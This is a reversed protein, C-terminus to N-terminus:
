MERDFDRPPPQGRSRLVDRLDDEPTRRREEQTPEPKPEPEHRPAPPTSPRAVPESNRATPPPKPPEFRKSQPAEALPKGQGPQYHIRPPAPKSLITHEVQGRMTKNLSRIADAIERNNGSLPPSATHGTRKRKEDRLREEAENRAQAEAIAQQDRSLREASRQRAEEITPLAAPDIDMLRTRIEASKVDEIRRTLGHIEGAADVLVFDRRDGRTLIFGEAEVRVRFGAGSVTQQWCQTVIRKAQQPTMGSREAQRQEGWTPGREPRPQSAKDRTHAGIVPEHRFDRELKRSVLEHRRYNHSDPIARGTECDIRSWVVHTHQRGHKIHEVMAFPQGTMGLECALRERAHCQQAPTMQETVPTNISAHYLTRRSRSGAGMGDMELLAGRLDGAAVGSLEIVRVRENTDARLLHYALEGAGGRASGKIVM